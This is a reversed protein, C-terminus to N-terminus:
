VRSPAVATALALALALVALALAGVVVTAHDSGDLSVPESAVGVLAAAVLSGAAGLAIPWDLRPPREPVPADAEVRALVALALFVWLGAVLFGAFVDSPYHWVLALTAYAIVVAFASGLLAVAGRWAAPAVMVACLAITMAATGHGSPWSLGEIQNAGLWDVSRDQVLVHKLAQTTTGTGVIVVAVALARARHGRAVAVGICVLGLAAYPVPNVALAVDTLQSYIRERALGVFGHLMADDRQRGGATRVTALRVLVLGAACAAASALAFRGARNTPPRAVRAM